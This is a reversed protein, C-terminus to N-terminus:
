AHPCLCAVVSEGRLGLVDLRKNLGFQTRAVESRKSFKVALEELTLDRIQSVLECILTDDTDSWSM